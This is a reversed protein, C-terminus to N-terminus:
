NGEVNIIKGQRSRKPNVIGTIRDVRFQKWEGTQIDMCDIWTYDTKINHALCRFRFIGRMKSIRILTGSKITEAGFKLEFLVAVDERDSYDKCPSLM